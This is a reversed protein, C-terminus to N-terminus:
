RSQRPAASRRAWTLTVDHRDRGEHRGPPVAYGVAIADVPGSWGADVLLSACAALTSGKTVLDDVLVIRAPVRGDGCYQMTARHEGISPRDFRRTPDSSKRLGMMRQLLPDVTGNAKRALAEAFQYTGWASEAHDRTQESRPVPVFIRGRLLPTGLWACAKTAAFAAADHRRQDSATYTEVNKVSIVLQWRHRRESDDKVKKWPLYYTLCRVRVVVPPGAVMPGWVIRDFGCEERIRELLDPSPLRYGQELHSITTRSVGVLDALQQQTLRDGRWASVARGLERADNM